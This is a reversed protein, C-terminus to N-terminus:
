ARMKKALIINEQSKMDRYLIDEFTYRAGKLKRVKAELDKIIMGSKKLKETM